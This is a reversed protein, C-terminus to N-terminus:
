TMRAATSTDHNYLQLLPKTGLNQINHDLYNPVGADIMMGIQVLVFYRSEYDQYCLHSM